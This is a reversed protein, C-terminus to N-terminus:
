YNGNELKKCEEHHLKQLRAMEKNQKKIIEDINGYSKLYEELELIALDIDKATLYEGLLPEVNVYGPNTEVEFVKSGAYNSYELSYCTYGIKTMTLVMRVTGLESKFEFHYVSSVSDMSCDLMKFKEDDIPILSIYNYIRELRDFMVVNDTQFLKRLFKFM